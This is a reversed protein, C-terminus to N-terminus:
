LYLVNKQFFNIFLMPYFENKDDITSEILQRPQINKKNWINFNLRVNM